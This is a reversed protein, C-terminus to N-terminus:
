RDGATAARSIATAVADALAARSFPKQLLVIDASLPGDRVADELHGSIIVIPIPAGANRAVTALELGSMGPMRFDTVLVDHAEPASRLQEIADSASGVGTVVCGTSELLRTAARRVSPEDDVLLVRTGHAPERLDADPLPEMVHGGTAPAGDSPTVHHVHTGIEPLLVVFTSGHGPQSLVDIEGGLSRVISQVIPLGLGTGRGPAKTSFYPDFLRERTRVDMGAGSDRVRLRAWHGGTRHATDVTIEVHGHEAVAHVANTILNFLIQHLEAASARVMPATAEVLEFRVGTPASLRALELADRAASIPDLSVRETNMGRGFTLIRQVLDRAREASRQADRLATDAPSDHPLTARVAEVNALVPVLLNNFDHAIGGALTGLAENRRAETLQREAVARARDETELLRIIIGNAIAFVIVLFAFNLSTLLWERLASPDGVAWPLWELAIATAVGGLVGLTALVVAVTSRPGLLFAALFVSMFLWGLVTSGPGRIVVSMVGLGFSSGTLFLNRVHNSVRHSLLLYFTGVLAATDVVVLTWLGRSIGVSLMPIAPILGLTAVAGLFAATLRARWRTLLDADEQLIHAVLPLVRQGWRATRSLPLVDFTGDTPHAM